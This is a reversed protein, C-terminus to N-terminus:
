RWTLKKPHNFSANFHKALYGAPTLADPKEVNKPRTSVSKYALATRTVKSECTIQISVLQGHVRRFSRVAAVQAVFLESPQLVKPIVDVSVCTEFIVCAAPRSKSPRATGLEAFCVHKRSMHLSPDGLNSRQSKVFFRHQM